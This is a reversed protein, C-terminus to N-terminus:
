IWEKMGYGTKLCTWLRKGFRIRWQTRDLAEENL